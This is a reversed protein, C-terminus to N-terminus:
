SVRNGRLIDGKIQNCMTIVENLLPLIEETEGELYLSGMTDAIEELFMFDYKTM